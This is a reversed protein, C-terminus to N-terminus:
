RESFLLNIGKSQKSLVDYYNKNLNVIKKFSEQGRKVCHVLQKNVAKQDSLQGEISNKAKNADAIM